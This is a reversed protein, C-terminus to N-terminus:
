LWLFGSGVYRHPQLICAEIIQIDLSTQLSIAGRVAKKSRAQKMDYMYM